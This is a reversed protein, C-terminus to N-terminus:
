FEQADFDSAHEVLDNDIAIVAPQNV